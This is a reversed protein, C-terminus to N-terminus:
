DKTEQTYKPSKFGIPIRPKDSAKNKVQLEALTKNILELQM